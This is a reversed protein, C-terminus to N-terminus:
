LLINVYVLKIIGMIFKKNLILIIHKWSNTFYKRHKVGAIKNIDNAKLILKKFITLNLFIIM